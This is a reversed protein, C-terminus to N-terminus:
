FASNPQLRKNAGIARNPIPFLTTHGNSEGTLPTRLDYAQTFKSFRILDQRRWGEWMLELLREALINDLTATRPGMGARARVLHLEADGNQGNRVKAEALMLLVDAYRYLVIDNDQLKGDFFAKRDIEYKSM